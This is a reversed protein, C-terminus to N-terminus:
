VNSKSSPRLLLAIFLYIPMANALPIAALLLVFITVHEFCKKLDLDRHAMSLALYAFVGFIGIEVIMSMIYSMITNGGPQYWFFGNWLSTVLKLEANGYSNFGAPLGFNNIFYVGPVVIDQLRGNLSGDTYFLARAGDSAILDVLQFMRSDGTITISNLTIVAALVLAVWVCAIRIKTILLFTILSFTAIILFLIGMSSKAVVVISFINLIIAVLQIKYVKYNNYVLYVFSMFFLQIAFFTPETALSTVGREISTRSNVITSFNYIGFYEIFGAFLWIFNAILITKMPFGYRKSMDFICVYLLFIGIYNGLGRVSGFDFSLDNYLFGFFIGLLVYILYFRMNKPIILGNIRFIFYGITVIYQWPQSDMNNLSLNVWPFLSVIVLFLGFCRIASLQIENSENVGASQLKLTLKGKEHQLVLEM